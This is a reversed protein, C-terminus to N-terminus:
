ASRLPTTATGCPRTPSARGCTPLGGATAQRPYIAAAQEELALAEDISPAMMAMIELADVRAQENGSERALREADSAYRYADETRHVSLMVMAITRTSERLRRRRRTLTPAGPKGPRGGRGKENTGAYALSDAYADLPPACPRRCRMTPWASPPASGARLKSTWAGVAGTRISRRRWGSRSSPARAARAGLDAGGTRQRTERDLEAVLPTMGACCSRGPESQSLRSTSAIAGTCTAPKRASRSGPARSSAVTALMTLRGPEGARQSTALLNKDVLAELAELPAGTVTQAANLTCGGAFVALATLADQEHATLLAYSWELTATLTRQRAPADRSASGLGDLDHRLRAALEAVSLLGVGPRGRARDRAAARGVAPM